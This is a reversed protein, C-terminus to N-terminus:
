WTSAPSPLCILSMFWPTILVGFWDDRWNRFGVAEVELAPNLISVGAMRTAAIHRFVAELKEPPHGGKEVPPLFVPQADTM